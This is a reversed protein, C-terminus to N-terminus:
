NSWRYMIFFTIAKAIQNFEAIFFLLLPSKLNEHNMTKTYLLSGLVICRVLM